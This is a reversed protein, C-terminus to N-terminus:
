PEPLLRDIAASWARRTQAPSCDHNHRFQEWSEVSTLTAITAVTDDRSAPTLSRLEEDFQRRVQDTMAARIADFHQRADPDDQSTTRSLLQLPHLTEHLDFRAAPLFHHLARGAAIGHRLYEDVILSDAAAVFQKRM